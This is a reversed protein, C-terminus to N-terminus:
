ARAGEGQEPQKCAHFPQPARRQVGKAFRLLSSLLSRQYALIQRHKVLEGTRQRRLAQFNGDFKRRQGGVNTTETMDFFAVKAFHFCTTRGQHVCPMVRFGMYASRPLVDMTYDVKKTSPFTSISHNSSRLTHTPKSVSTTRSITRPMSLRIKIAMRASLSGGRCRSRARKIPRLRASPMRMARSPVRDKSNARVCGHNQIPE